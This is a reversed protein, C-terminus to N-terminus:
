DIQGAQNSDQRAIASCRVLRADHCVVWALGLGIRTVCEGQRKCSSFVKLLSDAM